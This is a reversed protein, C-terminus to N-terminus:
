GVRPGARRGRAAEPCTRLGALSWPHSVSVRPQKGSSAPPECGAHDFRVDLECLLRAKKEEAIEAEM